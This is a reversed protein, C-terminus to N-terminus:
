VGAWRALDTAAKRRFGKYWSFRELAQRLAREGNQLPHDRFFRAVERRHADTLLAPTADILRSALLPPVRKQLQQWRDM